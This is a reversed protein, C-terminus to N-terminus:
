VALQVFPREEFVKMPAAAERGPQTGHECLAVDVANADAPPELRQRVLIPLADTTDAKLRVTRRIRRGFAAAADLQNAPRQRVGDGLQRWAIAQPEGTVIRLTERQGLGAPQKVLM